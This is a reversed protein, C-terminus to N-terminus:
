QPEFGMLQLRENMIRKVAEPDKGAQIARNAAAIVENADAPTFESEIASPQQPAAPQAPAAAPNPSQPANMNQGTRIVNMFNNMDFPRGPGADPPRAVDGGLFQGLAFDGDNYAPDIKRQKAQWEVFEAVRNVVEGNEDEGILVSNLTTASPITFKPKGDASIDKRRANSLAASAMSATRRADTAGINSAAQHAPRIDTPGLQGGIGSVGLLANMVTTPDTQDLQPIMKEARMLTGLQQETELGSQLSSFQSALKSFILDSDRGQPMSGKLRQTAQYQDRTLLADHIRKNLLERQNQAKLMREVATSHAQADIAPRGVLAAVAEEVGPYGVGAPM